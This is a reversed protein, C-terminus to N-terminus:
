PSTIVDVGGGNVRLGETATYSLSDGSKIHGNCGSVNYFHLNGAGTFTFSGAHTNAYSFGARGDGAGPATGDIVASCSAGTQYRVVQGDVGTLTGSTTGPSAPNYSTARIPWPLGGFTIKLELGHGTCVLLHQPGGDGVANAITGIPNALGSGSKLTGHISFGSPCGFRAGTTTDTLEPTAFVYRTYFNGGPTVTWTAPTAPRQAAAAAAPALGVGIVTAAAAATGILAHVHRSTM